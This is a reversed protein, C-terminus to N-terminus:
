GDSATLQELIWGHVLREVEAAAEDLGHGAEPLLVLRKPDHATRYVYDSGYPPLTRDATGHILLISCRPGLSAAPATGYSQTALTIVTRALSSAAAARIAVAGGFSHGVLAAANVGTGQLLDLGALADLTCEDLDNPLRYRVRLSAVGETALQSCLRPYLNRAPTDWGGGAGGLWLAGLQKQPTQSPYYHAEIRGRSTLLALERFGDEEKGEEIGQLVMELTPRAM